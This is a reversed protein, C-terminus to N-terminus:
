SFPYTELVDYRPRGRPGAGLHSEILALEEARWTPGRYTDLVRLWRTAEFPHSSRALTLHSRFRGGDTMAGARNVATRATTALHGLDADTEVGTWLVKANTVGPFAGGGVLAADFATQRAATRALREGLDDLNRDAVDAMFALTIHWQETTTWRLESGAERRVDLFDDLDEIAEVPPVVAVFLRM